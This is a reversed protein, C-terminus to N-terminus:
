KHKIIKLAVDSKWDPCRVANIDICKPRREDLFPFAHFWAAPCIYNDKMCTPFVFKQGVKHGAPCAGLSIIEVYIVFSNLSSIRRDKFIGPYKRKKVLTRCGDRAACMVWADGMRNYKFNAGYLLGLMYPYTAYYLWPCIGYPYIEENSYAKTINKPHYSCGIKNKNQIIKGKM